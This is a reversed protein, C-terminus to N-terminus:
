WSAFFYLIFPKEQALLDASTLQKGDLTAVSFAPALQGPQLGTAPASVPGGAQAGAARSPAASSPACAIVVSGLLLALVALGRRCRDPAERPMLQHSRDGIREKPVHM